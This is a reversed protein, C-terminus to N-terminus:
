RGLDQGGCGCGCGPQSGQCSGNGAACNCGPKGRLSNWVMRTLYALAAIGAGYLLLAEM